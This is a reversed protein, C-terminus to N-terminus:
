VLEEIKNCATGSYGSFCACQGTSYDCIGRGSCDMGSMAGFCAYVKGNYFHNNKDGPRSLTWVGTQRCYAPRKATARVYECTGGSPSAPVNLCATDDDLATVAACLDATGEEAESDVYAQRWGDSGTGAFKQVQFDEVLHADEEDTCKDDLPDNSSPCEILACNAGRYGRDCLCGYLHDSDWADDYTVAYNEKFMETSLHTQLMQNTKSVAFDYAFDRNSRCTGHGSCDDPCSTRQCASGTFGPFCECLGTARDCVGQDSCEHEVQHSCIFTEAVDEWPGVDTWSTSRPCTRRSCDAGTWESFQQGSLLEDKVVRQCEGADGATAEWACIYTPDANADACTAETKAHCIGASIQDNTLYRVGEGNENFCTCQDHINCSGHGNCGNPCSSYAAQFLVAALLLYKMM